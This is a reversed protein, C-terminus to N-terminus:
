RLKRGCQRCFRAGPRTTAGCGGCRDQTPDAGAPLAPAARFPGRRWVWILGLLLGLASTMGIILMPAQPFAWVRDHRLEAAHAVVTGDAATLAYAPEYRFTAGPTVALTWVRSFGAELDAAGFTSRGEAIGTLVIERVAFLPTIVVALAGDTTQDVDVIANATTGTYRRTRSDFGVREGAVGFLEISLPSRITYSGTAAGPMTPAPPTPAAADAGGLDRLLAAGLAAGGYAICSRDPDPAQGPDRRIQGQLRLAYDSLQSCFSAPATQPMRLLTAPAPTSFGAEQRLLRFPLQGHRDSLALAATGFLLTWAGQQDGAVTEAASVFRWEGGADRVQIAKDRSYGRPDRLPALQKRLTDADAGEASLATYSARLAEGVNGRSEELAIAFLEAPTLGRGLATAREGARRRIASERAGPTGADAATAAANGDQTGVTPSGGAARYDRLVQLFDDILTQREFTLSPAGTYFASLTAEDHFVAAEDCWTRQFVKFRLESEALGGRGDDAVARVAYEGAAPQTLVLEPADTPQREGDVTWIWRLADGDPDEGFARLRVPEGLTPASPMVNLALVQPPRNDPSTALDATEAQGLLPLALLLFLFARLM